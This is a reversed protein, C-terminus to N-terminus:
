SIIGTEGEAYQYCCPEEARRLLNMWLDNFSQIIVKTGGRGMRIFNQNLWQADEYFLRICGHSAHHGPLFSAHMAYGRYFFMCFPMPAGGEPIPYKSSICQPGKKDFVYFQGTITRCGRGVDPCWNQGGSMPGWHVLYGYEDYAGFAQLGLNIILVGRGYPEIRRPMPSIDMRNTNRLNDPVAIIMGAELEINRRNLRMVIDREDWNPWLTAWTDGQRVKICHYGPASCLRQGYYAALSNTASFCIAIVLFVGIKKLLM